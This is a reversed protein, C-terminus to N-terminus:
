EKSAGTMVTAIAGFLGVVTPPMTVNIPSFKPAMSLDNDALIPTFVKHPVVLQIDSVERDHVIVTNPSLPTDRKIYTLKATLLPEADANNEYSAGTVLIALAGFPNVIPCAGIVMIPIFIAETSM